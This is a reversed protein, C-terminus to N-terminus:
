WICKTNLELDKKYLISSCFTETDKLLIMEVMNQLNLVRLHKSVIKEQVDSIADIIFHSQFIGSYNSYNRASHKRRVVDPGRQM